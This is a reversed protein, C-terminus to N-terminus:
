NSWHMRLRWYGPTVYSGARLSALYLRAHHSDMATQLHDGFCVALGSPSQVLVKWPSAASVSAVAYKEVHLHLPYLGLQEEQLQELAEQIEAALKPLISPM